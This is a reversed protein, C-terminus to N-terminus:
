CSKIYYFSKNFFHKVSENLVSYLQVCSQTNRRIGLKRKIHMDCLHFGGEEMYNLKKFYIMYYIYHRSVHFYGVSESERPKFQAKVKTHFKSDM